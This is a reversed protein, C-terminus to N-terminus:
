AEEVEMDRPEGDVDIHWNEDVPYSSDIHIEALGRQMAIKVAEEKSDAEVETFCSVTVVASVNYRM